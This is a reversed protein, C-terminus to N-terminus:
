DLVFEYLEGASLEVTISKLEARDSDIFKLSVEGVPVTAHIPKMPVLSGSFVKRGLSWIEIRGKVSELKSVALVRAGPRLGIRASSTTGLAVRAPESWGFLGEQTSAWM